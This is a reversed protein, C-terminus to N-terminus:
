SARTRHLSQGVVPKNVVDAIRQSQNVGYKEGNAYLIVHHTADILIKGKKKKCHVWATHVIAFFQDLLYDLQGGPLASIALRTLLAVLGVVVYTVFKSAHM